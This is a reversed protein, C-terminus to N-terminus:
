KYLKIGAFRDEIYDRNRPDRECTFYLRDCQKQFRIKNVATMRDYEVFKGDGILDYSVCYKIKEFLDNDM